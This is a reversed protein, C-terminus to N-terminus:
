ATKLISALMQDLLDVLTAAAIEVDDGLQLPEPEPEDSFYGLPLGSASLLLSEGEFDVHIVNDIEDFAMNIDWCRSNDEAQWTEIQEDGTNPLFDDAVVASCWLLEVSQPFESYAGSLGYKAAIKKLPAQLSELFQPNGTSPSRGGLDNEDVLTWM